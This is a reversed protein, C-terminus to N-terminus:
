DQLLLEDRLHQLRHAAEARDPYTADHREVRDIRQSATRDDVSRTGDRVPQAAGPATEHEANNDPAVWDTAGSSNLMRYCLLYGTHPQVGTLTTELGTLDVDPEHSELLTGGDCARQLAAGATTSTIRNERVPDAVTKIEYSFGGTVGIDGWTLSRTAMGSDTAPSASGVTPATGPPKVAWAFSLNEMDDDENTTKVCLLATDSNM